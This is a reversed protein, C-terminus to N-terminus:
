DVIFSMQLKNGSSLHSIFVSM